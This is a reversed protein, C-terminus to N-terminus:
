YQYLPESVEGWSFVWSTDALSPDNKFQLSWLDLQKLSIAKRNGSIRNERKWLPCLSSIIQSWNHILYCWHQGNIIIVPLMVRELGAAVLVACSWSWSTLNLVSSGTLEFNFFKFGFLSSLREEASRWSQKSASISKKTNEMEFMSDSTICDVKNQRM